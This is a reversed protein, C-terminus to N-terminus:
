SFRFLHSRIGRLQPFATNEPMEMRECVCFRDKPPNKSNALRRFFYQFMHETRRPSLLDRLARHGGGASPM